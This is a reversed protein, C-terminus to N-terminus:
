IVDTTDSETRGWLHCGVLSGRGQSEGPLFVPTPQWKRRWHVFTFLSLSIAWDHGVRLSGMSQLRCPGGDMPNELCSYQLPTGNGEGDGTCSVSFYYHLWETTGSEEHGWPNYGVLSRWGHSKGPLPVPTPQWKRRRDHYYILGFVSLAGVKRINLKKRRHFLPRTLWTSWLSTTNTGSDLSRWVFAEPGQISGPRLSPVHSCALLLSASCVLNSHSPLGSWYKQRSFGLSQPAQHAAM